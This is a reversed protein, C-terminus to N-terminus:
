NSWLWETKGQDSTITDAADKTARVIQQSASFYRFVDAFLDPSKSLGQKRRQSRHFLSQSFRKRLKAPKTGTQKWLYSSWSSQFHREETIVRQWGFGSKYRKRKSKQIRNAKSFFHLLKPLLFCSPASSFSWLNNSQKGEKERMSWKPSKKQREGKFLLTPTLRTSQVAPQANSSAGPSSRPATRGRERSSAACSAQSWPSYSQGRLLAKGAPAGSAGPAHFCM